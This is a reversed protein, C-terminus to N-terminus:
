VIRARNHYAKWSFTVRQGGNEPCMNGNPIECVFNDESSHNGIKNEMQSIHSLCVLQTQSFGIDVKLIRCRHKDSGSSIWQHLQHM